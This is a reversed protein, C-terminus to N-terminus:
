VIAVTHVLNHNHTRTILGFWSFSFDAFTACLYDMMICQGSILILDFTLTVPDCLRFANSSAALINSCVRDVAM